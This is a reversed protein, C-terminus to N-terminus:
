DEVKVFTHNGLSIPRQRVQSKLWRTNDATDEWLSNDSAPSNFVEDWKMPRNAM